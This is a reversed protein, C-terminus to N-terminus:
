EGSRLAAQLADAMRSVLAFTAPYAVVERDTMSENWRYRIIRASPYVGASLSVEWYLTDEGERQPPASRLQAVGESAELEWVALPEELFSLRRAINAAHESLYSRVDEGVRTSHGVVLEQLTVSYRDHDFFELKASGFEDFVSLAGNADIEAKTAADGSALLRLQETLIKGVSM